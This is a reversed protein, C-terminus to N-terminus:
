DWIAGGSLMSEWSYTIHESRTHFEVGDVHWSLPLVQNPDVGSLIAPHEAGWKHTRAWEWFAACGNDSTDDLFSTEFQARNVKWINDLLETPPIVPLLVDDLDTNTRTKQMKVRLNYPEVNFGGYGKMFKMYDREENSPRSGITSLAKVRQPQVGEKCQSRALRLISSIHSGDSVAETIDDFNESEPLSALKARTRGARACARGGRWVNCRMAHCSMANSADSLLLMSDCSRADLEAHCLMANTSVSGASGEM